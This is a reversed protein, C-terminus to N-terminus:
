AYRLARLQMHACARTRMCVHSQACGRHGALFEDLAKDIFTTRSTVFEAFRALPEFSSRDLRVERFAFRIATQLERIADALALRRSLREQSRRRRASTWSLHRPVERHFVGLRRM